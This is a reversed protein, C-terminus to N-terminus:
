FGGEWGVEGCFDGLVTMPVIYTDIVNGNVELESRTSGVVGEILDSENICNRASLRGFSVHVETLEPCMESHTGLLGGSVALCLVM